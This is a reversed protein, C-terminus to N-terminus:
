NTATRRERNKRSFANRIENMSTAILILVIGLWQFITVQESLVLHAAIVAVPLEISGLITAVSTPLHPASVAFLVPPLIAGCLAVGAAYIWVSSIVTETFLFGPPFVVLILILSGTIMIPARILPDIHPAANGSVYVLGAYSFASCFGLLIGVIPLDTFDGSVVDAALFIGILTLILSMVIETSPRRKQIVWEILIGVWVFQFLLVIAISAPLYQMAGYYFISTLGTFTGVVMLMGVTKKSIGKILHRKRFGILWLVVAAILMQAGNLEGLTYGAAFHYKVFIPNFGFSAAGITFLIVAQWRKM